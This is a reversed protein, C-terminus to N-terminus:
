NIWVASMQVKMNIESELFTDKLSADIITAKEYADKAADADNTKLLLKALILYAQAPPRELGVLEEVLVLGTSIKGLEYFTQALAIKIQLDNPSMRLADKIEIEAEEWKENKMLANALLKRLPISDPSAKIAERLSQIEDFNM